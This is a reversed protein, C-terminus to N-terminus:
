ANVAPVTRGDGVKTCHTRFHENFLKVLVEGHCPKPACWCVLNKGNLTHLKSMLQKNNKVYKEYQKIADTRRLSASVKFHNAWESKQLTEHKFHSKRGIYLANEWSEIDRINAITPAIIEARPIINNMTTAPDHRPTEGDEGEKDTGPTLDHRPVGGNEEPEGEIKLLGAAAIDKRM